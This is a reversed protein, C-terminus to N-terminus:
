APRHIFKNIRGTSRLAFIIHPRSEDYGAPLAPLADDTEVLAFDSYVEQTIENVTTNRNIVTQPAQGSATAAPVSGEVADIRKSLALLARKIRDDGIRAIDFGLQGAM